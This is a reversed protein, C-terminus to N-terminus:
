PIDTISRVVVLPKVRDRPAQATVNRHRAIVVAVPFQVNGNEAGAVAHPVHELAAVSIVGLKEACVAVFGDADLRGVGQTTCAIVSELPCRSPCLRCPSCRDSANLLVSRSILRVSVQIIFLSGQFM